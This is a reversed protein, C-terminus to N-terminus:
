NEKPTCAAHPDFGFNSLLSGCLTWFCIRILSVLCFQVSSSRFDTETRFKEPWRSGRFDVGPGKESQWLVGTRFEGRPAPRRDFAGEIAQGKSGRELRVPLSAVPEFYVRFHAFSCAYVCAVDDSQLDRRRSLFRLGLHRCIQPLSERRRGLRPRQPRVDRGDRAFIPDVPDDGGLPWFSARTPDVIGARHERGPLSANTAEIPRPEVTM